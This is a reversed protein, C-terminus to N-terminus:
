LYEDDADDALLGRQNSALVRLIPHHVAGFYVLVGILATFVWALATVGIYFPCSVLRMWEFSGQWCAAALRGNLVFYAFTGLALMIVAMVAIMVNDTNLFRRLWRWPRRYEVGAYLLFAGIGLVLVAVIQWLRSPGATVPLGIEYATRWLYPSLGVLGLGSLICGIRTFWSSRTRTITM